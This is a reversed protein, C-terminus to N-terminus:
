CINDVTLEITRAPAPLVAVNLWVIASRDMQASSLLGLAALGCCRSELLRAIQEVRVSIKMIKM